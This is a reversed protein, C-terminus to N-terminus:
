RFLCIRRCRRFCVPTCFWRCILRCLIPRHPRVIDPLLKNLMSEFGRKDQTDIAKELRSATTRNAIQASALAFERLVDIPPFPGPSPECVLFCSRECRLTCFWMCIWRCYPILKLQQLIQRIRRIDDSEFARAVEDFAERRKALQGIAKSMQQVNKLPDPENAPM